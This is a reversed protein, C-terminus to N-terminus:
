GKTADRRYFCLRMTGAERRSPPPVRLRSPLLRRLHTPPPLSKLLLCLARPTFAFSGAILTCVCRCAGDRGGEPLSTARTLTVSPALSSGLRVIAAIFTCVCRCEGDRSGEPLSTARTLTVSPALTFGLRVIAAIFTCVCRCKGDRGGEPLSAARTAHRFSCAFLRSPCNRRYFGIVVFLNYLSLNRNVVISNGTARVEVGIM